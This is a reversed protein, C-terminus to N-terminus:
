MDWVKWKCLSHLPKKACTEKMSSFYIHSTNGWATTFSVAKITIARHLSCKADKGPMYDKPQPWHKKCNIPNNKSLLCSSIFTVM